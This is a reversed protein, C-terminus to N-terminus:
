LGRAARAAAASFFSNFRSASSFVPGEPLKMTSTSPVGTTFFSDNAKGVSCCITSATELTTPPGEALM